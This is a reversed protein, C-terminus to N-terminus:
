QVGQGLLREAEALNDNVEQELRAIESDLDEESVGLVSLEDLVEIRQKELQELTAEARAKEDRAKDIRAKIAQLRQETTM